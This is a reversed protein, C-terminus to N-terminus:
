LQVPKDTQEPIKLAPRWKNKIKGSELQARKEKYEKGM